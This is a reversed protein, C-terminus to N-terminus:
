GPLSSTSSLAVKSKPVIATPLLPVWSQTTLFTPSPSRSSEWPEYVQMHVTALKSVSGLVPSALFDITRLGPSEVVIVTEHCALSPPCKSFPVLMVVDSGAWSDNQNVIVPSTRGAIM